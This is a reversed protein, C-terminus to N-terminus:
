HNSGVIVREFNFSNILSFMIYIIVQWWDLCDGLALIALGISIAAFVRRGFTKLTRLITRPSVGNRFDNYIGRIESIGVVGGLASTFCDYPDIAAKNMISEVSDLSINNEIGYEFLGLM